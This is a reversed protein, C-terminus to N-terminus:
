KLETLKIEGYYENPTFALKERKEDLYGKLVGYKYNALLTTRNATVQDEDLPLRMIVYYGDETEVVESVGYEKLAFSASEYIDGMQGYTFYFGNGTTSFGDVFPAKGIVQTMISYREEDGSASSLQEAATRARVLSDATNIVDSKKPYFAHITRVFDGGNVVYDIFEEINEAGYEIGNEAEELYDILETELFSVKYLRRLVSDTLYSEALWNKYAKKDGEFKGDILEEVKGQVFKEAENSDADIDFDECLSYIVYLDSIDAKVLKELEKEYEARKDGDLSAYEGLEGDLEAMRVSAFYRLEEYRVEFGGIEGVARADEDSSKIPRVPGLQFVIAIIAVVIFSLVALGLVSAAIIKSKTWKKENEANKSVINKKNKSMIKELCIENEPM